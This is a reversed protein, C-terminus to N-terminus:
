RELWIGDVFPSNDLDYTFERVYSGLVWPRQNAAILITFCEELAMEQLRRCIAKRKEQDLTSQLDHRLQDWEASEFRTKGGEKDTYWSKAATVLTGPDRSARGYTDAAIAFDRKQLLRTNYIGPEVDVIRANVGIKRLDAQLIQAIDLLGFMQKSSTMIETEFGKELDAEKLLAKAKELNYGITGELDKFYAWSHLPWMLCTPEVLGQLTTKCFRARDAAWAVAQRVKKNTFPETKCGMTLCFMNSGPAGMDVVFKGGADKLRAVDRFTAQWICNVAGSELNIALTTVDPIQRIIYRDLYPKGRDWYDKFAVMEVRDNPIYRELRFPGTGIPSKPLDKITEKDLIYLTDLLDFVGPNIGDFRLVATYRDPTEVKKVTQYLSRMTVWESTSAFEVTHTVDEATFERGSHFKVGQRLKLALSKGDASFEWKEALEPQPRLQADYHVLTSFLARQHAFHGPRLNMPNFDQIGATKALTLTGGRRPGTPRTSVAAAQAPGGRIQLLGFAATGAAARLFGRRTLCREVGGYTNSSM